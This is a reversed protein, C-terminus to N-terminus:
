FLENDFILIRHDYLDGMCNKENENIKFYSIENESVLVSINKVSTHIKQYKGNDKFYKKTPRELM